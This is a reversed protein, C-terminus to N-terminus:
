NRHNWATVAKFAGEWIQVSDSRETSLHDALARIASMAQSRESGSRKLLNLDRLLGQVLDHASCSM